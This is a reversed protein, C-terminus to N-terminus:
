LERYTSEDRKRVRAVVIVGEADLVTYIVRYAGARVRYTGGPADKVSKCGAPRPDERLALIAQDIRQRVGGPLRRMEKQAQRGIVVTWRQQPENM